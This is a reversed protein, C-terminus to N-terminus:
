CVFVYKDFFPNFHPPVILTAGLSTAKGIFADVDDVEVFLQV